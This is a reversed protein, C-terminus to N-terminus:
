EGLEKLRKLIADKRSRLEELRKEKESQESKQRIQIYTDVERVLQEVEKNVPFKKAYKRLIEKVRHLQELSSLNLTDLMLGEKRLKEKLEEYERIPLRTNEKVGANELYEELTRFYPAFVLQEEKSLIETLERKLALLEAFTLQDLKNLIYGKDELRRRVKAVKEKMISSETPTESSVKVKPELPTELTDGAAEITDSTDTEPQDIEAAVPVEVEKATATEPTKADKRRILREIQEILGNLSESEERSMGGFKGKELMGPVFLKGLENVIERLEEVSKGEMMGRIEERIKKLQAYANELEVSQVATSETNQNSTQLRSIEKQKEIEQRKLEALRKAHISARSEKLIRLERQAKDLPSEKM